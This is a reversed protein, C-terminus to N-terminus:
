SKANIWKRKRGLYVSIVKENTTVEEPTGETIKVGYDLVVIRRCLGMVVKMNHEVVVITKGQQQILQVLNMITETEQPNMGTAPEDLLLIEPDLALTTALELKRQDGYPLSGAVQDAQKEMGMFTLTKTVRQELEAGGEKYSKTRFFSSWIGDKARLHSGIIMNERVSLNSFISRLQFTRGIGRAAIEYSPMSTIPEGKYRIQGETPKLFGTILNFLTTKGSGNPGIVGLIEGEQVDVDIQNIARLGGFDKSLKKVELIAVPEVKTNTKNLPDIV